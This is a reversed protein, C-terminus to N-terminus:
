SGDSTGTHDADIPETGEMTSTEEPPENSIEIVRDEGAKELADKHGFRYFMWAMHRAAGAQAGSLGYDSQDYEDMFVSLDDNIIKYAADDEDEPVVIKQDILYQLISFGLKQIAHEYGEGLGGMEVTKIMQGDHWASLLEEPTEFIMQGM